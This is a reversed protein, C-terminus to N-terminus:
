ANNISITLEFGFSLTRRARKHRERKRERKRRRQEQNHYNEEEPRVETTMNAVPNNDARAQKSNAWDLCVYHSYMCYELGTGDILGPPFPYGSSLHSLTAPSKRSNQTSQLDPSTFSITSSPKLLQMVATISDESSAIVSFVLRLFSQGVM